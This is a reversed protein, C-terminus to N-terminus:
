FTICHVRIIGSDYVPDFEINCHNKIEFEFYKKEIQRTNINFIKIKSNLYLTNNKFKLKSITSYKYIDGAIFLKYRETIYTAPTDSHDKLDFLLYQNIAEDDGYNINLLFLINKNPLQFVKVSHPIFSGFIKIPQNNEIVFFYTGKDGHHQTTLITINSDYSYKNWEKEIFEFYIPLGIYSSDLYFVGSEAKKGFINVFENKNLYSSSLEIYSQPSTQILIFLNIILIFFKIHIIKMFQPIKLPLYLNYIAFICILIGVLNTFKTTPIEILIFENNRNM